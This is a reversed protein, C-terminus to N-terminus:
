IDSDIDDDLFYIEMVTQNGRVGVPYGVGSFAGVVPSAYEGLRISLESMLKLKPIKIIGTKVHGSEDDKYRTKGELELYGNILQQGIKMITANNDYEFTYDVIVKKFPEYVKYHNKELKKYVMKNFNEDYIFIEKPEYKLEIEGYENSSLKERKSVLIKKDNSSNLMKANNLLGFQLKSFIGQSFTIDVEKTSEWIILNSNNFGGKSSVKTKIERLNAINIKDFIAVVEGKDFHRDCVEFPYTAKLSVDYLEKFSFDEL